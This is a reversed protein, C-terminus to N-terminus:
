KTGGLLFTDATIKGEVLLDIVTGKGVKRDYMKSIKAAAKELWEFFLGIETTQYKDLVKEHLEWAGRLTETYIFPKSVIREKSCKICHDINPNFRKRGKYDLQLNPQIDSSQLPRM